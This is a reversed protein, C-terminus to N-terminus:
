KKENVLLLWINKQNKIQEQTLITYGNRITWFRLTVSAKVDEEGVDMGWLITFPTETFETEM